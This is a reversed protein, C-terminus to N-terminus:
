KAPEAEPKSESLSLIPDGELRLFQLVPAAANVREFNAVLALYKPSDEGEGEGGDTPEPEEMRVEFNFGRDVRNAIKKLAFKLEISIENKRGSDDKVYQGILEKVLEDIGVDMVKNAHDEVGKLSKKELGQKILEGNLKRIELLKKYLEIIREISTAVCAAVVAALELYVTLESSSIARIEFSPRSGTAVEEFVGFMKNLEDLEKSFRDLRNDVFARPILIGLECEGPALDEKGLNLSRFSALVQDLATSFTTLHQLLDQLLSLAVSPTIANKAFIATVQELLEPGLLGGAGLEDITEHWSPSFEQFRSSEIASSLNALAASVQQQYQGQQPQNVLNQLASVLQQLIGLLNTRALDAKVDAAVAHLREANM